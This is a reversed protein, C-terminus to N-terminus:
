VLVYVRERCSARGLEGKLFDKLFLEVTQVKKAPLEELHLSNSETELQVTKVESSRSIDLSPTYSIIEINIRM